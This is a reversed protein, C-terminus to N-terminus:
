ANARRYAGLWLALQLDIRAMGDRLDVGTLKQIRSLRYYVTTRHLHLAMAAGAVDGGHDLVTRATTVLDTHTQSALIEAGPHVDAISLNEPAEVVLRWAGLGDWTAPEPRAGAAIARRTATARRVAESLDILPLAAGSTAM